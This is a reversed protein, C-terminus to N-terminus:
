PSAPVLRITPGAAQTLMGAAQVPTLMRTWNGIALEPLVGFPGEAKAGGAKAGSESGTKGGSAGSGGDAGVANPKRPRGHRLCHLYWARQIALAARTRKSRKPSKSASKAPSSTSAPLCGGGAVGGSASGGGGAVGDSSGGATSSGAAKSAAAKSGVADKNGAALKSGAAKTSNVVCRKVECTSGNAKAVGSGVSGGAVAAGPRSRLLSDGAASLAPPKGNPWNTCMWHSAVTSLDHRDPKSSGAVIGKAASSAAASSANASSSGVSGDKAAVAGGGAKAAGGEAGIAHKADLSSRSTRGPSSAVTPADSLTHSAESLSSTDSLRHSAESTDSLQDQNDVGGTSEGSVGGGGGSGGAAGDASGGDSTSDAIGGEDSKREAKASAALSPAASSSCGDLLSSITMGGGGRKKKGKAKGASKVGSTRGAGVDVPPPASPQVIPPPPPVAGRPLGFAAQSLERAEGSMAAASKEAHMARADAAAASGARDSGQSDTEGEGGDNDVGVEKGGEEKSESEGDTAAAGDCGRKKKKKKGGGEKKSSEKAQEEELLALLEAAAAEAQAAGGGSSASSAAAADPAAGRKLLKGQKGREYRVARQVLRPCDTRPHEEAWQLVSRELFRGELASHGADLLERVLETNGGECAIILPTIGENMVHTLARARLLPRVLHECVLRQVCPSKPPMPRKEEKAKERAAADARQQKSLISMSQLCAHHLCTAGNDAKLNPNAGADLLLQLAVSSGQTLATVDMFGSSAVHVASACALHLATQGFTASANVDAGHEILMELLPLHDAHPMSTMMFITFDLVTHKDVNAARSHVSAGAELFARAVELRNPQSHGIAMHMPRWGQTNLREPSAKARLLMKVAELNAPAGAECASHLPTNEQPDTLSAMDIHPGDIALLRKLVKLQGHTCASCTAGSLAQVRANLSVEDIRQLLKDVDEIEGEQSAKNLWHIFHEEHPSFTVMVEQLAEQRSRMRHYQQVQREHERVGKIQHFDGYCLRYSRLEEIYM